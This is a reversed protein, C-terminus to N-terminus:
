ARPLPTGCGAGRPPVRKSGWGCCGWWPGGSEPDPVGGEGERQPRRTFLAGLQHALLTRGASPRAADRRPLVLRPPRAILKSPLARVALGRPLAARQRGAAGAAPPSPCPPLSTTPGTPGSPSPLGSIGAACSDGRRPAAPLCASADLLTGAVRSAGEGPQGGRLSWVGCFGGREGEWM